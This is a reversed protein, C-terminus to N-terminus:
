PSIRLRRRVALGDRHDPGRDLTGGRRAGLLQGALLWTILYVGAPPAPRSSTISKQGSRSLSGYHGRMASTSFVTSVQLSM